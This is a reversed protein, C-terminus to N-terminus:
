AASPGGLRHANWTGESVSSLRLRDDVRLVFKRAIVRMDEVRAIRIAVDWNEEMIDMYRDTLGLEVTMKPHSQLFGPLLPAVHRVGFSVPASVRLKGAVIVSSASADAEAQTLETLLRETEALFRRGTETFVQHRPPPASHFAWAGNWHTSTSRPWPLRCRSNGRRQLSAGGASRMCLYRSDVLRDPM